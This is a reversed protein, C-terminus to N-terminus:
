KLLLNLLKSILFVYDILDPFIWFDVGFLKGLLNIIHRIMFFINIFIFFFFIFDFIYERVFLPWIPFIIIIFISM